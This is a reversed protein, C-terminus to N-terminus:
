KDVEEEQYYQLVRFSACGGFKVIPDATNNIIKEADQKSTPNPNTHPKIYAVYIAWGLGAIIAIVVMTKFAKFWVMGGLDFAKKVLFPETVEENWEM